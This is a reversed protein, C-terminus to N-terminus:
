TKQAKRIQKKLELVTTKYLVVPYIEKRSYAGFHYPKQVRFSAIKFSSMHTQLFHSFHPFQDHMGMDNSIVLEKMNL